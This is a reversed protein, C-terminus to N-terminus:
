ANVVIYRGRFFIYMGVAIVLYGILLAVITYTYSAPMFKPIDFLLNVAFATLVLIPLLMDIRRSIFLARGKLFVVGWVLYFVGVFAYIQFQYVFDM